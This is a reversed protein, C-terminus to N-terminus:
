VTLPMSMERDPRRVKISSTASLSSFLPSAVGSSRQKESCTEGGGGGGKHHGWVEYIQVFLWLTCPRYLQVLIRGGDVKLGMPEYLEFVHM